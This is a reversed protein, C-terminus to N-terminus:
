TIIYVDFNLIETSNCTVQTDGKHILKEMIIAYLKMVLSINKASSRKNHFEVFKM